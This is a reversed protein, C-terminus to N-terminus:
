YKKQLTFTVEKKAYPHVVALDNRSEYEDKTVTITKTQEQFCGGNREGDIDEILISFSCDDAKELNYVRDFATSGSSIRFADSTNSKINRITIKLSDIFEGQSNTVNGKINITAYGEDKCSSLLFATFCIFLFLYLYIFQIRKM